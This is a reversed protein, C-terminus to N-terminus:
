VLRLGQPNSGLSPTQDTGSETKEICDDIASLHTRVAHETSTGLLVQKKDLPTTRLWEALGARKESLSTHIRELIGTGM